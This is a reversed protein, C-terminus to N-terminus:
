RVLAITSRPPRATSLVVMGGRRQFETIAARARPTLEKRENLLTGDIDTAILRYHM